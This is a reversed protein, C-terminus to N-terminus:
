ELIERWSSEDSAGGRHCEDIIIFDFFDAPYEGFYPAPKGEKDKGCMFTQFITFFINANKPVAGKKTIEKPAIRVLANDDFASFSNYAQDALINRDALFLIRPRRNSDPNGSWRSQYLKWSIQFAISTKGTGTALNLLIREKGNSIAELAKKIANDQYYRPQWLGGKDEFPVSAFEDRWKNQEKFTLNWLEEPTPYSAITREEGTQMDIQYIGEGNTSYTFRLQLMSAYQKAQAAGESVALSRKKAEVVALRQNRYMLVYDASLAKSRRGSGQLRGDTINLERRIHSGEVVGWGAKKLAPDILEARTEAENM